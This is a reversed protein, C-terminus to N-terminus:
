WILFKDSSPNSYKEYASFTKYISNGGNGAYGGQADLKPFPMTANFCYAIESDEIPDTQDVFVDQKFEDFTTVYLKDANTKEDTGSKGRPISGPYWSGKFLGDNFGVYKPPDPAVYGTPKKESRFVITRGNNEFSAGESDSSIL